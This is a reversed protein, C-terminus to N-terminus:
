ATTSHFEDIDDMEDSINADDRALDEEFFERDFESSGHFMLDENCKERMDVRESQYTIGAQQMEADRIFTAVDIPQGQEAYDHAIEENVKEIDSYSLFSQHPNYPSNNTRDFQAVGESLKLEINAREKEIAAVLAVEADTLSPAKADREVDFIKRRVDEANRLAEITSSTGSEIEYVRGMVVLRSRLTERDDRTYDRRGDQIRDRYFVQMRGADLEQNLATALLITKENDCRVIWQGDRSLYDKHEGVKLDKLGDGDIAVSLVSQLSDKDFQAERATIRGLDGTLYLCTDASLQRVMDNDREAYLVNFKDIGNEDAVPGEVAYPVKAEAALKGFLLSQEETLGKLMLVHDNSYKQLQEMTIPFRSLRMAERLTLYDKVALANAKDVLLVNLGGRKDTIPVNKIGRNKLESSVKNLEDPKVNVVAGNDIFGEMEKREEPTLTVKNFLYQASLILILDKTMDLMNAGTKFVLDVIDDFHQEVQVPM